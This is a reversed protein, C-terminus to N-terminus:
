LSAGLCRFCRYLGDPGTETGRAPLNMQLFIMAVLSQERLICHDALLMFKGTKRNYSVRGRPFETYEANPVAGQKVLQEWYQFHYQEHFSFDGFNGAQAAPTTDFWLKDGVLYIIGVNPARMSKGNSV